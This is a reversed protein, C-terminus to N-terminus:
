QFVLQSHEDSSRESGLVMKTTRITHKNKNLTLSHTDKLIRVRVCLCGGFMSERKKEM